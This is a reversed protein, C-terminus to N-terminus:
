KTSKTVRETCPGNDRRRGNSTVSSGNKVNAPVPAPFAAVDVGGFTKVDVRGKKADVKTVQREMPTGGCDGDVPRAAAMTTGLMLLGVTLTFLGVGRM